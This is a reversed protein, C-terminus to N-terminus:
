FDFDYDGSDGNAESYMDDFRRDHDDVSNPAKGGNAWVAVADEWAIGEKEAIERIEDLKNQVAKYKSMVM